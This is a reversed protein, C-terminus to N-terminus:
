GRVGLLYSRGDNLHYIYIIPINAANIPELRRLDRMQGAVANNTSLRRIEARADIVRVAKVNSSANFPM